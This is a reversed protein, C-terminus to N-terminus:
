TLQRGSEKKLPRTTSPSNTGRMMWGSIMSKRAPSGSFLDVPRASRPGAHFPTVRSLDYRNAVAYTGSSPDVTISMVENAVQVTGDSQNKM